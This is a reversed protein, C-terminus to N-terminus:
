PLLVPFLQLLNKCVLHRGAAWCVACFCQLFVSFIHTFIFVCLCRFRHLDRSCPLYVTVSRCCYVISFNRMLHSSHALHFLDAVLDLSFQDAFTKRIREVAAEEAIFKEIVGPQALVQQVKKTGALHYAINPCIIALSREIMLRTQWDAECTLDSPKYCSRQYIIAVEMNDSFMQWVYYADSHFTLIDPLEFYAEFMSFIVINM